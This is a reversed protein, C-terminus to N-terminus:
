TSGMTLAHLAVKLVRSSIVIDYFKAYGWVGPADHM